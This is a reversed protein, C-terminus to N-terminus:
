KKALGEERPLVHSFPRNEVLIEDPADRHWTILASLIINFLHLHTYTHTHTNVSSNVAANHYTPKLGLKALPVLGARDGKTDSHLQSVFSVSLVLVSLPPPLPKADHEIMCEVQLNFTM